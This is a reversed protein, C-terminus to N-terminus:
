PVQDLANLLAERCGPEPFFKVGIKGSPSTVVDDGADAYLQVQDVSTMIVSGARAAVQDATLEPDDASNFSRQDNSSGSDGGCGAVLAAALLLPTFVQAAPRLHM